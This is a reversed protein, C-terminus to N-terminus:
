RPRPRYFGVTVAPVRDAGLRMLAFPHNDTPVEFTHVPEFDLQDRAHSLMPREHPAGAAIESPLFTQFGSGLYVLTDETPAGEAIWRDFPIVEADPMGRGRMAERYFGTPFRAEVPDGDPDVGEFPPFHEPPIVLRGHDPLVAWSEELGALEAALPRPVHLLGIGEYATFTTVVLAVVLVAGALKKWRYATVIAVSALAMSLHVLPFVSLFPYGQETHDVTPLMAIVSLGLSVGVWTRRRAFIVAGALALIPLAIPVARVDFYAGTDLWIRPNLREGLEDGGGFFSQAEVIIFAFAPLMPWAKSRERASLIAALAVLIAVVVASVGTSGALAVALAAALWGPQDDREVAVLCLFAALWLLATVFPYWSHSVSIRMVIPSTGTLLTALLAAHGRRDREGLLKTLTAHQFLLALMAFALSVGWLTASRYPLVRYVPELLHYAPRLFGPREQDCSTSRACDSRATFTLHDHLPGADPVVLTLILIAALALLVSRTLGIRPRLFAVLGLLALAPLWTLWPDRAQAEPRFDPTASENWVVEEEHARVSTLLPEELVAPAGEIAFRDTRVESSSGTPHVLRVELEDGQCEYRARIVGGEIRTGLLECADVTLMRGILDEQGPPLAQAAASSTAFLVLSAAAIRFAASRLHRGLLPV